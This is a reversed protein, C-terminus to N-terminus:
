AGVAAAPTEEIERLPFGVCFRAGRGERREAWIRGDMAEVWAKALSLGIGSSPEGATPRASLRAGAVFLQALDADTLGPGEDEVLVVVEGDDCRISTRVVTGAPSFKMANEVLNDLVHAVLVADGRIWAPAPPVSVELRQDKRLAFRGLREPIGAVPHVLNMRVSHLRATPHEIRDRSLVGALLEHMRRTAALNEETPARVAPAVDPLSLVHSCNSMVVALPSRLDHAAMQLFRRRLVDLKLLSGNALALDRTRAEVRRELGAKLRRLTAVRWRAYLAGALVVLLLLAVVGSARALTWFPPPRVIIVDAASRALVVPWRTGLSASVLPLKVGTVEVISGPRVKEVLGSGEDVPLRVELFGAMGAPRTTIVVEASHRTALTAECTVRVLHGDLAQSGLADPDVILRPASPALAPGLFLLADEIKLMGDSGTAFGVVEVPEGLTVEPPAVTRVLAVDDGEQVFIAGDARLFTVVGRTRVRGLAQAAPDYRALDALVRYPIEHMPAPPVLVQFDGVGQAHVRLGALQGQPNLDTGFAGRVIVQAGVLAALRGLDGDPLVVRARGFGTALAVEARGGARRASRVVGSVTMFRADYSGNVFQTMRLAEPRPPPGPGLRTVRPSAIAPTFEGPSTVGEVEVQDGRALAPAAGPDVVAIGADGAQVFLLPGGPEVWTVVARVRVPLALAAADRPLRLILHIDTIPEAAGAALAASAVLAVATARALGGM